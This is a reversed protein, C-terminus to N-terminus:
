AAGSCTRPVTLRVHYHLANYAVEGDNTAVSLHHEKSMDFLNRVSETVFGLRVVLKMTLRCILMANGAHVRVRNGPLLKLMADCSLNSM